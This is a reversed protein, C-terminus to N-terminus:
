QIIFYDLLTTGQILSRTYTYGFGANVGFVVLCENTSKMLMALRNMRDLELYFSAALHYCLLIIFFDFIYLANFDVSTCRAVIRREASPKWNEPTQTKIPIPVFNDLSGVKDFANM